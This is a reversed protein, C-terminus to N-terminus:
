GEIRLGDYFVETEGYVPFELLDGILPIDFYIFVKVGYYKGKNGPKDFEYVCYKFQSVGNKLTGGPESKCNAKNDTYTNKRYGISKLYENIENEAEDFDKYKEMIDVLKTKIKFTKSYAVAGVLVIITIGVLVLAMEVLFAQGISEKM